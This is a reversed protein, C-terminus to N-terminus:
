FDSTSSIKKFVQLLLGFWRQRQLCVHRKQQESWVQGVCEKHGEARPIDGDSGLHLLTKSARTSSHAM